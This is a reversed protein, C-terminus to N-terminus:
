RRCDYQQECLGYQAADGGTRDPEPKRVVGQPVGCRRFPGAGVGVGGVGRRPGRCGIGGCGWIMRERAAFGAAFGAGGAFPGAAVSGEVRQRLLLLIREERCLDVREDGLFGVRQGRIRQDRIRQRGVRHAPIRDFFRTRRSREEVVRDRALVGVRQDVVHAVLEDVDVVLAVHGVLVAVEFGVEHADVHVRLQDVGVAFGVRQFALRDDRFRFEGVARGGVLHVRDGVVEIRLLRLDLTHGRLLAVSPEHAAAHLLHGVVRDVDLVAFVGRAVLGVVRVEVQRHGLRLDNRALLNDRSRGVQDHLIHRDIEQTDGLAEERDIRTRLRSKQHGGVALLVGLSEEQAVQAVVERHAFVGVERDPAADVRQPRPLGRRGRAVDLSVLVAAAEVHLIRAHLGAFLAFGVVDLLVVEAHLPGVRLIGLGIRARGERGRHVERRATVALIRRRVEVVNQGGLGVGRDGVRLAPRARRERQRGVHGDRLVGLVLGNRHRQRRHDEVNRAEVRELALLLRALVAPVLLDRHLVRALHGVRHRGGFRLDERLLREFVHLVADLVRDRDRRREVEEVVDVDRRRGVIRLLPVELLHLVLPVGHRVLGVRQRRVVPEVAQVVVIEADRGRRRDVAHEVERLLAAVALDLGDAM